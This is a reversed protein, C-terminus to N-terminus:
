RFLLLIGALSNLVDPDKLLVDNLCIVHWKESVDFAVRYKGPKNPNFILHHPNYWTRGAPGTDIEEKSLERAHKLSVCWM